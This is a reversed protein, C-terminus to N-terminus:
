HTIEVRNGYWSTFYGKLPLTAPGKTVSGDYLSFTSGCCSDVISFGNNSVETIGCPDEVKYPCHRDYAVFEDQARRHVIIGRSGGSLYTWGGVANLAFFQPDSEYLVINVPAYPVPSDVPDDKCSSLAVVPIILWFM